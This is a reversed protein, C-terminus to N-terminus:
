SVISLVAQNAEVIVLMKNISSIQGDSLTINIEYTGIQSVDTPAIALNTGSLLIFSPLSNASVTAALNNPDLV